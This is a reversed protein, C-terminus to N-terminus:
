ILGLLLWTLVALLAQVVRDLGRQVPAYWVPRLWALAALLGAALAFLRATVGGRWGWVLLTGASAASAQLRARSVSTLAM